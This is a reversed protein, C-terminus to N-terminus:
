KWLEKGVVNGTYIDIGVRVGSITFIKLTNKKYNCGGMASYSSDKYTDQSWSSIRWIIKKKVIDIGFVNNIYHTDKTNDLLLVLINKFIRYYIIRHELNFIEGDSFLVSDLLVFPKTDKKMIENVSVSGKVRGNLVDVVDIQNNSNYIFIEKKNNKRLGVYWINSENKARKEWVVEGKELSIALISSNIDAFAELSNSVVILTNDVKEVRNIAGPFKVFRNSNFIVFEDRIEYKIM